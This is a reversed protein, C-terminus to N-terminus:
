IILKVTNLGSKVYTKNLYFRYNLENTRSSILFSLFLSFFQRLLTSLNVVLFTIAISAESTEPLKTM